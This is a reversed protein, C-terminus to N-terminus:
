LAYIHFNGLPHSDDHSYQITPLGAENCAYGYKNNEDACGYYCSSAPKRKCYKKFKVTEGNKVMEFGSCGELNCADLLKLTSGDSKKSKTKKDLMTKVHALDDKTLHEKSEPNNVSTLEIGYPVRNDQFIQNEDSFSVSVGKHSATSLKSNSASKLCSKSGSSGVSSTVGVEKKESTFSMSKSADMTPVDKSSYESAKADIKSCSPSLVKSAEANGTSTDKNLKTNSKSTETKTSATRSFVKSSSSVDTKSRQVNTRSGSPTFITKAPPSTRSPKSSFVSRSSDANSFNCSTDKCIGDAKTKSASPTVFITSSKSNALTYTSTDKNLVDVGTKSSAPSATVSKSSETRLNCTSTSRDKNLTDTKNASTVSTSKSPKAKAFNCTSTNKNLKLKIKPFHIDTKSGVPTIVVRTKSPISCTSVKKNIKAGCTTFSTTFSISARKPSIKEDSTNVEKNLCEKKMDGASETNTLQYNLFPSASVESVSVVFKVCSGGVGTSIKDAHLEDYRKCAEEYRRTVEQLCSGVEQEKLKVSDSTKKKCPNRQDISPAKKLSKSTTKDKFDASSKRSTKKSSLTSGTKKPKADKVGAKKIADKIAEEIKQQIVDHEIMNRTSNNIVVVITEDGVADSQTSTECFKLTDVIIKEASESPVSLKKQVSSESAKASKLVSKPGKIKSDKKKVEKATLKDFCKKLEEDTLCLLNDECRSTSKDTQEVSKIPVIAYSISTDKGRGTNRILIKYPKLLNQKGDQKCGSFISTAIGKSQVERVLPLAELCMNKDEENAATVGRHKVLKAAAKFKDKKDFKLCTVSTSSDQSDDCEIEKYFILETPVQKPGAREDGSEDESSDNFLDCKNFIFRLSAGSEQKIQPVEEGNKKLSYCLYKLPFSFGFIDNKLATEGFIKKSEFINDEYADHEKLDTQGKVDKILHVKLDSKTLETTGSVRTVQNLANQDKGNNSKANYSM